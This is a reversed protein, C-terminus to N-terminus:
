NEYIADRSCDVPWTVPERGENLEALWDRFDTRRRDRSTPAPRDGTREPCVGEAGIADLFETVTLGAASARRELKSFTQQPLTLIPM